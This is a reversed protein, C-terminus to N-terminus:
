LVTFNHEELMNVTIPGERLIRLHWNGGTKGIAEVITSAKDYMPPEETRVIAAHNAMGQIKQLFLPDLEREAAVPSKGSLNASSAVLPASAHHALATAIPSSSIRVAIRNKGDLIAPHLVRSVPLLITLPGPWFINMLEVPANSLDCVSAVQRMNACIVPLPKYPPREKIELIAEIGPVNSIKCGLAYWTETPYIVLDADKINKISFNIDQISILSTDPPYTFPLSKRM